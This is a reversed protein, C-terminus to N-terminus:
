RRHHRIDTLLESHRLGFEGFRETCTELTEIAPVYATSIGRSQSGSHETRLM